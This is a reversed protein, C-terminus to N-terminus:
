FDPFGPKLEAELIEQWLRSDEYSLSISREQWQTAFIALTEKKRMMEQYIPPIIANGQISIALDSVPISVPMTVSSFMVTAALVLPTLCQPFPNFNQLSAQSVSYDETPYAEMNNMTLSLNM